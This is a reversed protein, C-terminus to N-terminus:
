FYNEAQLHVAPATLGSNFRREFSKKLFKGGFLGFIVCCFHECRQLSVAPPIAQNIQRSIQHAACFSQQVCWNASSCWLPLRHPHTEHTLLCTQHPIETHKTISFCKNLNFWNRRVPLPSLTNLSRAEDPLKQVEVKHWFAALWLGTQDGTMPFSHSVRSRLTPFFFFFWLRNQLSLKIYFGKGKNKIRPALCDSTGAEWIRSSNGLNLPATKLHKQIPFM